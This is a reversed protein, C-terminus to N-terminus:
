QGHHSSGQEHPGTRVESVTSMKRRYVRATTCGTVEVEGMAVLQRLAARVAGVGRGLRSAVARVSGQEPDEAFLQHLEAVLDPDPAPDVHEQREVAV